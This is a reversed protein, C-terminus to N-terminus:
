SNYKITEILELVLETRIKGFRLEEDISECAAGRVCVVDVGTEWLKLMQEITISGALWAEKGLSHLDDVLQKLKKVTFYDLLSKGINKNYTDILLGDCNIKEVLMPGDILPNFVSMYEEDPFVAPYMKKEPHWEKITRMLSRGLYTSRELSLGAMGCKIFDSGATAVGLAAQCATSLVPQKEGINTSIPIQKFGNSDLKDRVAKINLPYPTGLASGPFEVDAIHAGGRAAVLAEKPGRVSVLLRGM